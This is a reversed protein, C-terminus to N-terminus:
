WIKRWNHATSLISMLFELNSPAALSDLMDVALMFYDRLKLPLPYCKEAKGEWLQATVSCCFGATGARSVAYALAGSLQKYKWLLFHCPQGWVLAQSYPLRVAGGRSCLGGATLQDSIGSKM